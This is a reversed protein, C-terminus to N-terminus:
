RALELTPKADRASCGQGAAAGVHDFRGCPLFILSTALDNHPYTHWHGRKKLGREFHHTGICGQSCTLYSLLNESASHHSGTTTRRRRREGSLQIALLLPWIGTHPPYKGGPLRPCRPSRHPP